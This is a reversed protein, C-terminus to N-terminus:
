LLYFLCLFANLLYSNRFVQPSISTLLFRWYILGSFTIAIARMKSSLTFLFAIKKIALTCFWAPFFQFFWVVVIIVQCYDLWIKRKRKIFLLSPTLSLSLSLSLSPVLSRAPADVYTNKNNGAHLKHQLSRSDCDCACKFLRRHPIEPAHRLRQWTVCQSFSSTVNLFIRLLFPLWFNATIFSM